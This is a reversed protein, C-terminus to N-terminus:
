KGVSTQLFSFLSLIDIKIIKNNMFKFFFVLYYDSLYLFQKKIIFYNVIDAEGANKGFKPLLLKLSLSCYREEEGEGKTEECSIFCFWKREWKERCSIRKRWSKGCSFMVQCKWHMCVLLYAFIILDPFYLLYPPFDRLVSGCFDEVFPRCDYRIDVDM